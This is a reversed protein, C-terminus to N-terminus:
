FEAILLLCRRTFTVARSFIMVRDPVCTQDECNGESRGMDRNYTPNVIPQYIASVAVAESLQV